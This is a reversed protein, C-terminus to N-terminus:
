VGCGGCGGCGWDLKYKPHPTHSDCECCSFTKICVAMIIITCASVNQVETFKTLIVSM